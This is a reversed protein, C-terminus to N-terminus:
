NRHPPNTPTSGDPTAPAWRAFAMGCGTAAESRYAAVYDVVEMEFGDSLAAGVVIWNRIESTGLVLRDAPLSTLTTEDAEALADLVRADLVADVEFHSLGGSAVLLVRRDDPWTDLASRLARGLQWCRQPSPINPAHDTNVLVPVVPAIPDVMIRRQVFTFAHGISRGEPQRSIQTVDFGAETLSGVIHSGLEACAPREVVEDGHYAWEAAISSPHLADLPRPRDILTDGRYVAIAPIGDDLFMESQDDGVIVVVDPALEIYTEHLAEIAKQCRAHKADFAEPTIEEHIGEPARSAADEFSFLPTTRDWGARESWAPGPMSLQPSHSTGLGGVLQAM